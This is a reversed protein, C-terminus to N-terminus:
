YVEDWARVQFEDPPDFAQSRVHMRALLEGCREIWDRETRDALTDGDIWPSLVGFRIEGGVLTTAFRQGTLTELPTPIPLGGERLFDAFMMQSRLRAIPYGSTLVKLFCCGSDTVIKANSHDISSLPEIQARRLGFDGLVREIIERPDDVPM